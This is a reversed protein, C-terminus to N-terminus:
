VCAGQRGSPVYWQLPQFQPQLPQPALHAAQDLFAACVVEKPTLPSRSLTHNGTFACDGWVHEADVHVNVPDDGAQMPGNGWMVCEVVAGGGGM